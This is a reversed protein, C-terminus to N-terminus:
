YFAFGVAVGAIIEVTVHMSMPAFGSAIPLMGMQMWPNGAWWLRFIATMYMVDSHDGGKIEAVGMAIERHCAWCDLQWRAIVGM